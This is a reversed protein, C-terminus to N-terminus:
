TRMPCQRKFHKNFHKFYKCVKCPCWNVLPNVLHNDHIKNTDTKYEINSWNDDNNDINDISAPTPRSSDQLGLYNARMRNFYFCFIDFNDRTTM